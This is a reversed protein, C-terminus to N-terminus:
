EPAAKTLTEAPLRHLGIRPQDGNHQVAHLAHPGEFRLDAAVRAERLNSHALPKPSSALPTQVPAHEADQM